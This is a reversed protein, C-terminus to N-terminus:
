KKLIRADGWDARDLIYFGKGVEVALEIEKSGEPISVEVRRAGQQWNVDGSNFQEKGDILVLFVVSGIEPDDQIPRGIVDIGIWSQFVRAGPELAFTLRCESHVGLGRRFERDRIKLPGGEVNRDRQWPWHFGMGATGKEVVRIPDLDSLYQVRGMRIELAAVRETAIKLEGVLPSRVTVYDDTFTKLAGLLRSGGLGEVAIPLESSELAPPEDLAAIGVSRVKDWTLELQGLKKDEFRVSRGSLGELLGVLRAGERTHVFDETPSARLPPPPMSEESALGAYDIQRIWELPIDVGDPFLRGNLSLKLDNTEPGIGGYLVSADALTVRLERRFSVTKQLEVRLVDRLPLSSGQLLLQPEDGLQIGELVEQRPGALTEVTVIPRSDQSWATPGVLLAALLAFRIVFSGM